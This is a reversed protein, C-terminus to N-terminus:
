DVRSVVFHQGPMQPAYHTVPSSEVELAARGPQVLVLFSVLPMDCSSSPPVMTM